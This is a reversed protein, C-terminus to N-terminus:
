LFSKNHQKIGLKSKLLRYNGLLFALHPLHNTTAWGPNSGPYVSGFDTTRGNSSRAFFRFFSRPVPSSGAAKENAVLREVVSSGERNTELAAPPTRVRVSKQLM